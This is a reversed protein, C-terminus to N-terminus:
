RARGAGHMRALLAQAKAAAAVDRRVDRPVDRTVGAVETVAFVAADLRNPSRRTGPEWTTMEHELRALTGVHHVEGAKALAAVPTARTEKNTHSVVERVYITGPRRPPFARKPDPLLEVRMGALKAHVRILDRAHQGVHNREVVVGSADRQCERVIITAYDEPSMKDSLDELYVHGAADRYAKAIGVEDASEDGSLAPDLGIVCVVPSLPRASVRYTDIWDQKWLAGAAETFVLGLIEEDYRRTGRGYKRVEDRLYAASLLPNEFMTGRTVRHERPNAASQELLLLIVDNKGSSTTDWLYQATGIRTATTIDDFAARRTSPSWRVIETMWTLDFNDGSSPREVEATRPSAVVGNAWRVGGRYEECQCWAPATALLASVQVDRVRDATPAIIAPAVCEGAAVRRNMECAIGFTKGWGRGSLFGQSRWGRDRPVRQEPRLTMEPSYALLALDVDSLRDLADVGAFALAHVPSIM